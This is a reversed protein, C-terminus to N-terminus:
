ASVARSREILEPVSLEILEPDASLQRDFAVHCPYERDIQIERYNWTRRGLEARNQGIIMERLSANLGRGDAKLVAEKLTWLRFFADLPSPDRSIRLLEEATFEETFDELEVPVVQEIDIGVRGSSVVACVVYRGSHSINFDHQHPFYPRGYETRIPVSDRCQPFLLLRLLISIHRAARDEATRFRSLSAVEASPRSSGAAELLKCDREIDFRVSHIRLSVDAQVEHDSRVNESDSAESRHDPKDKM